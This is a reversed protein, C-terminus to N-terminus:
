VTGINDPKYLLEVTRIYLGMISSTMIERYPSQAIQKSHQVSKSQNGILGPDVSWNGITNYCMEIILLTTVVENIIFCEYDLLIKLLIINVYWEDEYLRM